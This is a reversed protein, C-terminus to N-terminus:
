CNLYPIELYGVLNDKLMMDDTHGDKYSSAGCRPLNSAAGLELFWGVVTLPNSTEVLCKNEMM